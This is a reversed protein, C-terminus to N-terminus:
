VLGLIPPYMVSQQQTTTPGILAQGHHGLAMRKMIAVVYVFLTTVLLAMAGFLAGLVATYVAYVDDYSLNAMTGFLTTNYQSKAASRYGALKTLTADAQPSSMDIGGTCTYPEGFMRSDLMELMPVKLKVWIDDVLGQNLFGTTGTMGSVPASNKTVSDNAHVRISFKGNPAEITLVVSKHAHRAM